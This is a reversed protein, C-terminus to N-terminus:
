PSEKRIRVGNDPLFEVGHSEFYSKLKLLNSALSNPVDFNGAAEMKILTSKSISTQKALLDLSVRCAQRAARIQFATLMQRISNNVFM